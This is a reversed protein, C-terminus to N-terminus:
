DISDALQERYDMSLITVDLICLIIEQNFLVLGTNLLARLMGGEGRERERESPMNGVLPHSLLPQLDM